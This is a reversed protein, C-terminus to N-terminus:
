CSITTGPLQLLECLSLNSSQQLLSLANLKEPTGLVMEQGHEGAAVAPRWCCRVVASSSPAFLRCSWARSSGRRWAECLSLLWRKAQKRWSSPPSLPLGNGQLVRCHAHAIGQLQAPM